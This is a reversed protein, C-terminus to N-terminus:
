GSAASRGPRGCPSGPATSDSSRPPSPTPSTSGATPGPNTNNGTTPPSPPRASSRTCACRASRPTHPLGALPPSVPRGPTFPCTLRHPAGQPAASERIQEASGSAGPLRVQARPLHPPHRAEGPDPRQGTRLLLPADPGPRRATPLVARLRHGPQHEGDVALLLRDERGEGLVAARADAPVAARRRPGQAVEPLLPRCNGSKYVPKETNGCKTCVTPKEAKPPVPEPVYGWFAGQDGRRINEQPTVPELHGPCVCARVRCLHDLHLGKGIPGVSYQYAIRHPLNTGRGKSGFQGYGTKPDIYGVWLWCPGLDPRYDPVPGNKDVKAWFKRERPETTEGHKVERKAHKECLGYRKPKADCGEHRCTDGQPVYRRVEHLPDGHERWRMYHMGCWGRAFVPKGCVEDHEVLPCPDGKRVVM